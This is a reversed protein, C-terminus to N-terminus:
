VYFMAFIKLTLSRCDERKYTLVNCDGLIDSVNEQVTNERYILRKDPFPNVGIKICLRSRPIRVGVSSIFSCIIYFIKVEKEM